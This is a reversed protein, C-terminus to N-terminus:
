FNCDGLLACNLCKINFINLIIYEINRKIIDERQLPSHKATTIFVINFILLSCFHPHCLGIQNQCAQVTFLLHM